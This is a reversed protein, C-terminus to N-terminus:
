FPIHYVYLTCDTAEFSELEFGGYLKPLLLSFIM